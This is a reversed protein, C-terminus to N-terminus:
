NLCYADAEYRMAISVENGHCGSQFMLLENTKLDIQNM